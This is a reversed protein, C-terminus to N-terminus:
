LSTCTRAVQISLNHFSAYETTNVDQVLLAYGIRTTFDRVFKEDRESEKERLNFNVHAVVGM